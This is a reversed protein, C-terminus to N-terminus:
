GRVSFRLPSRRVAFPEPLGHELVERDQRDAIAKAAEKIEKQKLAAKITGDYGADDMRAALMAPTENAVNTLSADAGAEVLLCAIDLRNKAHRAFHLATMGCDRRANVDLGLRVFLKASDLDGAQAAFMLPTINDQTNHFPDAGADILKKVLPFNRHQTALMLPTQGYQDTAELPAGLEILMDAMKNNWMAAKHLATKDRRGDVVTDPEQLSLLEPHRLALQRAEEVRDNTIAAFFAAEQEHRGTM